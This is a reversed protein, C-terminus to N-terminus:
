KGQIFSALKTLDPIKGLEQILAGLFATDKAMWLVELRPAARSLDPDAIGMARLTKQITQNIQGATIPSEEDFYIVREDRRNVSGDPNWTLRGDTTIFSVSNGATLGSISVRYMHFYCFDLSNAYGELEKQCEEREKRIPSNKELAEYGRVTLGLQYGFLSEWDFEYSYEEASIFQTTKIREGEVPVPVMRPATFCSFLADSTPCDFELEGGGNDSRETVKPPRQDPSRWNLLSYIAMLAELRPYTEALRKKAAAATSTRYV